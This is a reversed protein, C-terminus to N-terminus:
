AAEKGMAECQWTVYRGVRDERTRLLEQQKNRRMQKAECHVDM